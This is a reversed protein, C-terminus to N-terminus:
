EQKSADGWSRGASGGCAGQGLTNPILTPRAPRLGHSSVSELGRMGKGSVCYPNRSPHAPARSLKGLPVGPNEHSAQLLRRQAADATKM